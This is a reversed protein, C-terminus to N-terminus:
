EQEQMSAVRAQVEELFKQAETPDEKIRTWNNNIWAQTNEDSEKGLKMIEAKTEELHETIQNVAEMEERSAMGKEVKMGYNALARGIASTECNEVFATRNAGGLGEREKAIGTAVLKDDVFVDAIIVVMRNKTEPPDLHFIKTRIAKIEKDEAWFEQVRKSVPIYKDLDFGSM